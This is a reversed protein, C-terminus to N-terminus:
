QSGCANICVQYCPSDGACYQRSRCKDECYHLYAEPTHVSEKPPPPPVTISKIQGPKPEYLVVPPKLVPVQVPPTPTPKVTPPTLPKVDFGGPRGPNPTVLIPGPLIPTVQPPPVPRVQQAMAPLAVLFLFAIAILKSVDFGDLPKHM